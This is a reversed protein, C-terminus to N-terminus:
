NAKVQATVKVPAAHEFTLTLEISAGPDLTSTPNILMIHFGGPALTASGGKPVPISDVPQMQMMGSDGAVTEHLEATAAATTSVSVLADDSGTGNKIVLYVAVAREMTMSARAWADSVTMTGASPSPTAAASCGAAVTIFMVLGVFTRTLRHAIM